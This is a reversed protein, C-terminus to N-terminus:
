NKPESAWNFMVTFSQPVKKEVAVPMLFRKFDPTPAVRSFNGRDAPIKLLERPPGPEFTRETNVTLAMVITKDLGIYALEKGDARWMPFEGGDKSVMWKGGTEAVNASGPFERVYIEYKGTENSEYAVWRGDPSFKGDTEDFRSHTFPIPNPEGKMPLVWMQETGLNKSTAYLLFRGDRSWGLARKDDNSRLLLQEAKAGDVPKRYLNYTGDRNSSFVIESGDPSWIPFLTSGPGFTFRMSSGRKLDLLWADASFMNKVYKIIAVRSADPSLSPDTIGGPDGVKEALKGQADFWTLQFETAPDEGRYVMVNPTVAFHGTEYASGVREAVPAPEGLLELKTADFAQAMVVGGRLFLLHGAGGDSAVYTAGFRNALLRNKSQHEPADDLSGIYIGSEEPVTSNIFYIFHRGDPLFSPLEHEMDHRSADLVTLPVPTGGEAPVRWLGTTSTGFIIVGDRNWSGGIPNAPRDCLDQTTDSLVDAKRLKSVGSFVNYRSDPSWFFPPPDAVPDTSPLSRAEQGDMDQVWVSTQGNSDIAPFAVRHGDPSLALQASPSFTVKEPLRITLRYVELPALTKERFHVFALGAAALCAAAAVIWPWLSSSNVM